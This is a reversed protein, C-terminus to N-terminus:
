HLISLVLCYFQIQEILATLFLQALISKKRFGVNANYALEPSETGATVIRKKEKKKMM